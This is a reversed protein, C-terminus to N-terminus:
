SIANDQDINVTYGERCLAPCSLLNTHLQPVFLVDKLTITHTSPRGADRPKLTLNGRQRAMIVAGNGLVIERPPIIRASSLWKKNQAMHDSAGSDLLLGSHKSNGDFETLLEETEIISVLTGQTDELAVSLVLYSEGLDHSDNSCLHQCSKDVIDKSDKEIAMLMTAHNATGNYEWNHMVNSGKQRQRHPCNKAIHGVESCEFCKRNEPGSKGKRGVHRTFRRGFPSVKINATLATASGDSLKPLSRSPKSSAWVKEEYEQLLRATASEWSVESEITQLSSVVHVYDSKCKDGFAALLMEVQMHESVSSGM